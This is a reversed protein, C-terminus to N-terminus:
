CRSLFSSFSSFFCTRVVGPWRKFTIDRIDQDTQFDEPRGGAFTKGDGTTHRGIFDVASFNGARILASPLDPMFGHAGPLSDYEDRSDM